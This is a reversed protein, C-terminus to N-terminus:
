NASVKDTSTASQAAQREWLNIDFGHAGVVHDSISGQWSYLLPADQTMVCLVCVGGGCLVCVGWM